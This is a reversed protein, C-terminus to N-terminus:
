RRKGLALEADIVEAVQDHARQLLEEPDDSYIPPTFTLTIRGFNLLKGLGPPWVHYSGTVAAPVVPLGARAVHRAINRTRFPQLKGDRARHGEAFVVLTRWLDDDKWTMLTDAGCKAAVARAMKRSDQTKGGASKAVIIDGRTRMLTRFGPLKSFLEKAVFRFRRQQAQILAIDLYSVHNAFVACASDPLHELGRVEAGPSILRMTWRGWARPVKDIWSPLFTIAIFRYVAGATVACVAAVVWSWLTYIVRIPLLLIHM